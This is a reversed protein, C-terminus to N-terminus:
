VYVFKVSQLEDIIKSFLILRTQLVFLFYYYSLTIAWSKNKFNSKTLYFMYNNHEFIHYLFKIFIYPTSIKKERRQYYYHNGFLTYIKFNREVLHSPRNYVYFNDYLKSCIRIKYNILLNNYLKIDDPPDEFCLLRM